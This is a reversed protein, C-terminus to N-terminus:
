FWVSTLIKTCKRKRTHTYQTMYGNNIDSVLLRCWGQFVNYQVIVLICKLINLGAKFGPQTQRNPRVSLSSQTNLCSQAPWRGHTKLWSESAAPCNSHPLYLSLPNFLSVSQAHFCLLMKLIFRRSYSGPFSHFLVCCHGLKRGGMASFPSSWLDLCILVPSFLSFALAKPFM